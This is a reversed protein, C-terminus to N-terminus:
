LRRAMRFEWPTVTGNQDRDSAQFRSEAATLFEEKTVDGDDDQDIAQFRAQKNQRRRDTHADSRGAGPGMHLAM